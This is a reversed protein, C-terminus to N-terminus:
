SSSDKITNLLEERELKWRLWQLKILAGFIMTLAVLGGTIFLLGKEDWGAGIMGCAIIWVYDHWKMRSFNWRIFAFIQKVM